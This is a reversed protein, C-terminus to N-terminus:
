GPPPQEAMKKFQIRPQFKSREPGRIMVPVGDHTTTQLLGPKRAVLPGLQANIEQAAATYADSMEQESTWSGSGQTVYDASWVIKFRADQSTRLYSRPIGPDVNDWNIRSNGSYLREKYGKLCKRCPSYYTFIVVKAQPPLAFDHFRDRLRDLLNMEAHADYLSNFTDTCEFVTQGGVKAVLAGAMADSPRLLTLHHPIQMGPPPRVAQSAADHAAEAAARAWDSSEGM